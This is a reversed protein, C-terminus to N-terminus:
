YCFKVFFFTMDNQNPLPQPTDPDCKEMCLQLASTFVYLFVTLCSIM